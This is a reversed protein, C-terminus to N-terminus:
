FLGATLHLTTVGHKVLIAREALSAPPPWWATQLLSLIPAQAKSGPRALETLLLQATRERLSADDVGLADGLAELVRVQEEDDATSLRKM